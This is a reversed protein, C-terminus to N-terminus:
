QYFFSFVDFISIHTCERLNVIVNSQLPVSYADRILLDNLGRINVISRGKKKDDPM